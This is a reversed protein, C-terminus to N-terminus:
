QEQRKNMPLFAWVRQYVFRIKPLHRFNQFNRYRIQFILLRNKFLVQM